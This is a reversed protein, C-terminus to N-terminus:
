DTELDERLDEGQFSQKKKNEPKAVCNRCTTTKKTTYYIIYLNPKKFIEELKNNNRIRWVGHKNILRFIRRKVFILEM